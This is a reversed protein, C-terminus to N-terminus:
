VVQNIETNASARISSEFAEFLRSVRAIADDENSANKMERVLLKAWGVHDVPTNQLEQKHLFPNILQRFSLFFQLVIWIWFLFWLFGMISWGFSFFFTKCSHLFRFFTSGKHYTQRSLFYQTLFSFSM